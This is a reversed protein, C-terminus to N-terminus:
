FEGHEEESVFFDFSFAQIVVAIMVSHNSAKSLLILFCFLFTIENISLAIEWGDANFIFFTSMIGGRGAVMVDCQWVKRGPFFVSFVFNEGSM